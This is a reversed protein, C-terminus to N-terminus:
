IRLLGPLEALDRIEHDPRPAGAPRGEGTRNIWVTTMGVRQAGLVDIDTRDGVFVADGPDVGLRALATEFIARAPKRWGVEDSVVITEFLGAVAERELVLRATPTYDFNSVVALRHTARLRELVPRHHPPFVVARSLERMHIGLLTPVTDPPLAAVDHGLLRFLMAFREPAPVERHSRERIAEAERWSALLASLFEALGVEPLVARLAAHLHGATSRVIRGDVRVAPLRERDFLVLTDFLDFLVAAHRRATM